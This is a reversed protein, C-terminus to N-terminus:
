NRGTGFLIKTLPAFPLVKQFFRRSFFIDDCQVKMSIISNKRIKLMEFAVFLFSGPSRRNKNRCVIERVLIVLPTQDNQKGFFHRDQRYCSHSTLRSDHTTLRSEDSLTMLSEDSMVRRRRRRQRDNTTTLRTHSLRTLGGGM